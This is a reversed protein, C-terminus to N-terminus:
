MTRLAYCNAVVVDSTATALKEICLYVSADKQLVYRNVKVDMIRNGEILSSFGVVVYGSAVLSPLSEKTVPGWWDEASWAVAPLLLM